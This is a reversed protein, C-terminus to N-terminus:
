SLGHPSNDVFDQYNHGGGGIDGTDLLQRYHKTWIGGVFFLVIELRSSEGNGGACCAADYHDSGILGDDNPHVFLSPCLHPYPM